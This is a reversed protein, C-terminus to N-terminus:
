RPGGSPLSIEIAAGGRFRVSIEGPAPRAGPIGAV